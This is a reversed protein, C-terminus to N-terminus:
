GTVTIGCPAQHGVVEVVEVHENQRMRPTSGVGIPTLKPVAAQLPGFARLRPEGVPHRTGNNGHPQIGVVPQRRPVIAVGVHHHVGTVHETGRFIVSPVLTATYAAWGARM